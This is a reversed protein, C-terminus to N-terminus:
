SGRLQLEGRQWGPGCSSFVVAKGSVALNLRLCVCSDGVLLLTLGLKDDRVKVVGSDDEWANAVHFVYFSPLEYWAIQLGVFM